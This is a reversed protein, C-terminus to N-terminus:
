RRFRSGIGATQAGIALIAGAIFDVAHGVFEYALMAGTRDDLRGVPGDGLQIVVVALALGYPLPDEFRGFLALV